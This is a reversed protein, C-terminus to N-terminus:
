KKRTRITLPSIARSNREYALKYLLKSDRSCFKLANRDAFNFGAEPSINSGNEESDLEVRLWGLNYVNAAKGCSERVEQNDWGIPYMVLGGCIMTAAIFHISGLLRTHKPTRLIHPLFSSAAALLTLAGIVAISVGIGMTVTSAQWWASPIDWFSSYRACEYVIEPTANPARIRPYNCRRFSSFYADAKGLLRGQIWYPLYFGSCALISAVTSLTAWLVCLVTM